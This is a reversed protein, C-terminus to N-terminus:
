VGELEIGVTFKDDSDSGAIDNFYIMATEAQTKGSVGIKSLQYDFYIDSFNENARSVNSSRQYVEKNSPDYVYIDATVWMGGTQTITRHYNKVQVHMKASANSATGSWDSFTVYMDGYVTSRKTSSGTGGQNIAYDDYEFHFSGDANTSTRLTSAGTNKIVAYSKVKFLADSTYVKDAVAAYWDGEPVNGSSIAADLDAQTAFYKIISGSEDVRVLSAGNGNYVAM